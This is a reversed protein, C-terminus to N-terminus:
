EISDNIDLDNWLCLEFGFFVFGHFVVRRCLGLLSGESVHISTFQVPLKLRLLVQDAVKALM